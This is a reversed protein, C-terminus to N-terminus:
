LVSNILEEYIIYNHIFVLFGWMSPTKFSALFPVQVGSVLIKLGRSIPELVENCLNSNIRVGFKGWFFLKQTAITNFVQNAKTSNM